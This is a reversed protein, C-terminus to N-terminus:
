WFMKSIKVEVYKTSGIERYPSGETNIPQLNPQTIFIVLKLGYKSFFKSQDYHHGFWVWDLGLCIRTLFGIWDEYGLLIKM